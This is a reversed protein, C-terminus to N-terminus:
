GEQAPSEAEQSAPSSALATAQLEKMYQSCDAIMMAFNAVDAAEYAVQPDVSGNNDIAKRIEKVEDELRVWFLEIDDGWGWGAGKHDNLRLKYEMITAFMQVPKRLYEWNNLVERLREADQLAADRQNMMKMGDARWRDMQGVKQELEAVKAEADKARWIVYDICRKGEHPSIEGCTPCPKVNGEADRFILHELRAEEPAQDTM